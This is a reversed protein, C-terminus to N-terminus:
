EPLGCGRPEGEAKEICSSRKKKELSARLHKIERQAAELASESARRKEREAKAESQLGSVKLRLEETREQLDHLKLDAKEMDSLVKEHVKAIKSLTKNKRVLADRECELAEFRARAAALETGGATRPDTPQVWKLGNLGPYITKASTKSGSKGTAAAVSTVQLLTGKSKTIELQERGQESLDKCQPYDPSPYNSAEKTGVPATFEFRLEDDPEVDSIDGNYCKDVDSFKFVMEGAEATEAHSHEPRNACDPEGMEREAGLMNFQAATGGGVANFLFAQLSSLSKSEWGPNM